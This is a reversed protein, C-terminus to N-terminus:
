HRMVRLQDSENREPESSGAREPPLSFYFVAGKDPEADAWVRGGHRHVVRQVTALGVGTGPFEDTRHLRQFAGFLKDAYRMDFGAGNDRVFYVSRDGDRMRGVEIRASGTKVTFKWANAILNELAVRLLRADGTVTMRDWIQVDVEREPDQERLGEVIERALGSLDVETTTLEARSVKSLDLLDDILQGMRQTAARIRGLYHSAQEPLDSPMDEVLAESFGDIARLPGRLDHSVSHCFSELEKNALELETTREKVRMELEAALARIEEEARKRETIDAIFAAFLPAGATEIRTIGLEIPFEGGDAKMGTMETRRGLVRTEGTELYRELGRRHRDRLAPPVMLSALEKGVVDNRSYGFTREAAGNFEAIRGEQDMIVFSHLASELITRTQEEKESLAEDRRQIEDLMENFSDVLTGVEDDSSKEARESYDRRTIIRRAVDAVSLIPRTVVSQLWFSLAAAALLSVLAVLAVIGAYSFLRSYPEYDASIYATGLIAGDKIVRKFALVRSGEVYVGDERPLRPFVPKSGERSYSAFLNGRSNYIAGAVVRPRFRLVALSQGAVKSDNFDLASASASGLLEAQTSIDNISSERYARLDYLVMAASAILLAILTTLIVVAVLKYRISSSSM